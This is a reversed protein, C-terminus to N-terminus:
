SEDGWRWPEGDPEQSAEQSRRRTGSARQRGRGQMELLEIPSPQAVPILQDFADLLGLARLVRVFTLLQVPDGGELRLVAKRGVGAENALGQQTLNRGLRHRALRRGLEQLAADDTLHNDIRM